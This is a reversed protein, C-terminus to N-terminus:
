RISNVVSDRPARLPHIQDLYGVFRTPEVKMLEM